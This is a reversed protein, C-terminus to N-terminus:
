YSRLKTGFCSAGFHSACFHGSSFYSACFYGPSDSLRRYRLLSASIAAGFRARGYMAYSKSHNAPFQDNYDREHVLERQKNKWKLCGKASITSVSGDGDGLEYHMKGDPFDADTENFLFREETLVGYGYLCHTALNNLLSVFKLVWAVTAFSEIEPPTLKNILTSVRRYSKSLHDLGLDHFFEDYNSISYNKSVLTVLPQHRDFIHDGPM